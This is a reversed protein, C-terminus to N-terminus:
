MVHVFNLSEPLSGPALLWLQSKISERYNLLRQAALAKVPDNSDNSTTLRILQYSVLSMSTSLYGYRM